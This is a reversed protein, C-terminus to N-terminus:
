EKGRSEEERKRRINKRKREKGRGEKRGEEKQRGSKTEEKKKQRILRSPFRRKKDPGAKSPKNEIKICFCALLGKSNISGFDTDNPQRKLQAGRTM